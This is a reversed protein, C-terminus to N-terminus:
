SVPETCSGIAQILAYKTTESLCMETSFWEEIMCKLLDKSICGQRLWREYTKAEDIFVDIHLADESLLYQIIQKMTEKDILSSALWVAPEEM